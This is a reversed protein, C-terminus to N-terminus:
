ANSFFKSPLGWVDRSLNPFILRPIYRPELKPELTPFDIGYGDKTSAPTGVLKRQEVEFIGRTLEVSEEADQQGGQAKQQGAGGEEEEDDPQNDDAEALFMPNMMLVPMRLRFTPVGDFAPVDIEEFSASMSPIHGRLDDGLDDDRGKGAAKLAKKRAKEKDKEELKVQDFARVCWGPSASTSFPRLMDPSPAIYFHLQTDKGDLVVPGACAMGHKKPLSVSAAVVTVIGPLYLKLPQAIDPEKKFKKTQPGGADEDMSPANDGDAELRSCWLTWDKAKAFVRKSRLMAQSPQEGEKVRPMKRFISATGIDSKGAGYRSMICATASAAAASAMSSTMESSSVFARVLNGAWLQSAPLENLTALADAVSAQDDLSASADEAGGKTLNSIMKDKVTAWNQQKVIEEARAAAMYQDLLWKNIDDKKTLAAPLEPGATKKLDALVMRAFVKAKLSAIAQWDDESKPIFIAAEASKATSCVGAWLSVWSDYDTQMADLSVVELEASSVVKGIAAFWKAVDTCLDKIVSTRKKDLASSSCLTGELEIIVGTMDDLMALVYKTRLGLMEEVKKNTEWFKTVTWLVPNIQSLEPPNTISHDQITQYVLSVFEFIAM